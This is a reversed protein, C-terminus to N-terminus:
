VVVGGGRGIARVTELIVGDESSYISTTANLKMCETARNELFLYLTHMATQQVALIMDGTVLKRSVPELGFVISLRYM